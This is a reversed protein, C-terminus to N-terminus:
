GPMRCIEGAVNIVLANDNLYRSVADHYIDLNNNWYSCTRDLKYETNGFDVNPKLKSDNNGSNIYSVIAKNTIVNDSFKNEDYSYYNM